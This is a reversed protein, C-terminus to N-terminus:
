IINKEMKHVENTKNYISTIIFSIKELEDVM